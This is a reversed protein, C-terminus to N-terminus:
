LYTLFVFICHPPLDLLPCVFKLNGKALFSFTDFFSQYLVVSRVLGPLMCPHHTAALLTLSYGDLLAHCFTSNLDSEGSVSLFTITRSGSTKGIRGNRLAFMGVHLHMLLKPIEWLYWCGKHFEIELFSKKFFWYALMSRAVCRLVCWLFFNGVASSAWSITGDVCPIM